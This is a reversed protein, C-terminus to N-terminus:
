LGRLLITLHHKPSSILFFEYFTTCSYNLVCVYNAAAASAAGEFKAPLNSFLLLVSHLKIEGALTLLKSSKWKKNLFEGTLKSLYLFTLRLRAHIEKCKSSCSVSQLDPFACRDRISRRGQKWRNKSSISRPPERGVRETPTLQCIKLALAGWSTPDLTPQLRDGSWGTWRGIWRQRIWADRNWCGPNREDIVHIM